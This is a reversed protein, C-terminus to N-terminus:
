RLLAPRSRRNCFNHAATRLSKHCVFNPTCFTKEVKSYTVLGSTKGCRIRLELMLGRDVVTEVQPTINRNSRDPTPYQQTPLSTEPLAFVLAAFIILSKM